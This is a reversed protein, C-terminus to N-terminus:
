EGAIEMLAAKLEDFSFEGKKIFVHSNIRAYGIRDFGNDNYIGHANVDAGFMKLMRVRMSFETANRINRELDGDKFQQESLHYSWWIEQLMAEATEETFKIEYTM